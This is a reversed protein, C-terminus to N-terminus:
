EEGFILRMISKIENSTTEPFVAKTSDPENYTMLREGNPGSLYADRVASRALQGEAATAFNSPSYGSDTLNGTADLGAFNGSAAYPVKDAKGSLDINVAKDSIELATGDVRVTEIANVQAGPEIRSLKTYDGSSMLGDTSGNANPVTKRTVAIKGDTGQTVSSVFTTGNGSSAPDTSVPDAIPDLKGNALDYADKVAHPTAATTTSTSSHSNELQVIGKQSTTGDQVTLSITESPEGPNAPSAFDLHATGSVHGTFVVTREAALQEAHIPHIYGFKDAVESVPATSSAANGGASGSGSVAPTEQPIGNGGGDTGPANLEDNENIGEM